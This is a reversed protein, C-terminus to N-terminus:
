VDASDVAMLAPSVVQLKQCNRISALVPLRVSSGLRRVLQGPNQLEAKLAVASPFRSTNKFCASRKEVYTDSRLAALVRSVLVVCKVRVSFKSMGSSQVASPFAIM